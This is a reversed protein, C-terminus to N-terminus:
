FEEGETSGGNVQGGRLTGTAEGGGGLIISALELLLAKKGLFLLVVMLYAGAMLAGSGVLRAWSPLSGATVAVFVATPVGAVLSAGLPEGVAELVDRVRIATGSTAYVLGPMTLILIMVSYSLAVGQAGYPLGIWFSVGVLVSSVAGWKLM